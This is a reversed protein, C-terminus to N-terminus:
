INALNKAAIKMFDEDSMKAYHDAQSLTGHGGITSVSQPKQANAIAREAQASPRSGSGAKSNLEALLYAAEYPNSSNKIMEAFMPNKSTLEPVHQTVMTNWDSHQSKIQMAAVQDQFESRLRQNETQLSVLAKKVDEDYVGTFPNEEVRAPEEPKGYNRTADAQGRWYEREQVTKAIEERLAKFNMEKDTLAAAEEVGTFPDEAVQDVKVGPEDLYSNHEPFLESSPRSLDIDEM